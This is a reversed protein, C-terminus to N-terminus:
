LIAISATPNGSGAGTPPDFILSSETLFAGTPIGRVIGKMTATYWGSETATNLTSIKARIPTESPYFWAELLFSYTMGSPLEIELLFTARLKVGSNITFSVFIAIDDEYGDIDLDTYYADYIVAELPTDISERLSKPDGEVIIFSNILMASLFIAFIIIKKLNNL